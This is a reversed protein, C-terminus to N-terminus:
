ATLLQATAQIDQLNDAIVALAQQCDEQSIQLLALVEDPCTEHQADGIGLQGLLYDSLFVLLNLAYNDGRYSPNHHHYVVDIIPKPMAWTRMLWTGILGHDIDLAFKEIRVLSLTPNAAILKNLYSCEDPFQHGLLLFGVNHLLAAAVVDANPLREAIPLKNNLLPMLRTSALSQLWLKETGIAGERHARLPALAALGIAANLVFDFGLVRIIAEKVSHIKGRYAYLPSSAWRIVQATLLPDLEIIEALKAADALPESALQMIRQAIAPLPPLERIQSVAERMDILSNFHNPSQSINDLTWQMLGTQM